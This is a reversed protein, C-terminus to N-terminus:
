FPYDPFLVNNKRLAQELVTIWRREQVLENHLLDRRAMVADLERKMAELETELEERVAKVGNKGAEGCAVILDYVCKQIEQHLLDELEACGTSIPKLVPAPPLVDMPTTPPSSFPKLLESKPHHHQSITVSIQVCILSQLLMMPVIFSVFIMALSVLLRLIVGRATMNVGMATSIPMTGSHRLQKVILAAVPCFSGLSM